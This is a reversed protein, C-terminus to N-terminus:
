SRVIRHKEQKEPSTNTTFQHEQTIELQQAWESVRRVLDRIENIPLRQEAVRRFTNQAQQDIQIKERKRESLAWRGPHHNGPASVRVAM